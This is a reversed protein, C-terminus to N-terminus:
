KDRDSGPEPLWAWELPAPPTDGTDAEQRHMWVLLDGALHPRAVGETQDEYQVVLRSARRELDHVTFVSSDAGWTAVFRGGGSPYNVYEQAGTSLASVTGTEFSYRYLRGWNFMAFGADPEKWIVENSTLVPMTANGSTDLQRAPAAPEVLDLLMVHRIDDSTDEALTVDVYALQQGYLSPLWLAQKTADDHRVLLRPEWDPAEAMWLESVSSGEESGRDFSAWAVRGSDVDFSPVLSPVGPDGAQSDLLIPESRGEELLWLKWWEEGSSSVEAFAWVDTDGAVKALQRDRAPNRWLLEPNDRGPVWRWLDPANSGGPGDAVGSSWIIAYSDSAFDLMPWLWGPDITGVELDLRNASPRPSRSGTPPPTATPASSPSLSPSPPSLTATLPRTPGAAICASGMVTMAVLIAITGLM